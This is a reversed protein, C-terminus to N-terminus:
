PTVQWPGVIRVKGCNPGGVCGGPLCFGEVTLDPRLDALQEASMTRIATVVAAATPRPDWMALSREVPSDYVWGDRVSDYILRAIVDEATPAADPVTVTVDDDAVAPRGGVSDSTM